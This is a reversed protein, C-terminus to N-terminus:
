SPFVDFKKLAEHLKQIPLGVVNFYSGIIKEIGIMGIWEQIGYAGAKDYPEYKSIYYDIDDNSLNKFYVETLDDFKIFQKESAICVGSIVKHNTGSLKRLMDYAENYDAPKGLIHDDSIVVTDATIIVTSGDIKSLYHNIKKEALYVAIAEPKLNSPYTEDINISQCDFTYGAEALIQKRRPSKSALIINPKM